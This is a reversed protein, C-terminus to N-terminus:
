EVFVLAAQAPIGIQIKGPLRDTGSRRPAARAGVQGPSPHRTKCEAIGM